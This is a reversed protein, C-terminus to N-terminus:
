RIEREVISGLFEIGRRWWGLGKIWDCELVLAKGIFM